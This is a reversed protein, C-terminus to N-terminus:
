ALSSEPWGFEGFGSIPCAYDCEVVALEYREFRDTIPPRDLARFALEHTAYPSTVFLNERHWESPDYAVAHFHEPQGRTLHKRSQVFAEQLTPDPM